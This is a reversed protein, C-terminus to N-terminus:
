PNASRVTRRLLARLPRSSTRARSLKYNAMRDRHRGRQWITNRNGSFSRAGRRGLSVFLLLAARPIHLCPRQQLISEQSLLPKSQLRFCSLPELDFVGSVPIEGKIIDYSLGYEAQSDTAMLM